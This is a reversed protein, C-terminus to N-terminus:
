IWGKATVARVLPAYAKSEVGGGPFFLVRASGVSKRPAFTLCTESESLTVSSDSKLASPDVDKAPFLYNSKNPPEHGSACNVVLVAAAVQAVVSTAVKGALKM